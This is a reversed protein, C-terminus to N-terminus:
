VKALSTAERIATWIKFPTLPPDINLCGFPSLADHVANVFAATSGTAASEGIGKVGLPNGNDPTEAISSLINPLDVARPLAYDMFSGSLLQGSDPDYAAEELWGQGVGQAVGGHLQGEVIMPNVARGCDQAVAYGSLAVMGTEPDVEVECAHCGAPVGRGDGTFVDTVAFHPEARFIDDWQVVLDTGPIRFRGVDFIIDDAPAELLAAAVDRAKRVAAIAALKVSSGGLTLSWSAATGVGEAMLGTDSQHFSLRNMPLSLNDVVIQLFSTEHGHGASGSGVILQLCGDGYSLRAPIPEASGHLDEAFLCVGFGRLQGSEVSRTRRTQFNRHDLMDLARDLLLEFDQEEFTTGLPSTWPMAASLVINARRFAIPDRGLRRAVIDMLRECCFVNEPRGAGRYSCTPATNTVAGRVTVHASPIGYVGTLHTLGNSVPVMARSSAYAGMNMLRTARIATIREDANLAAHIDFLNDRGHCDSTLAESRDAIWKVPRALRRAAELCLVYEPYVGNKQGFGGGTDPAVVRMRSRPVRFIRDALARQLIQVRQTSVQLTFGDDDHFGICGRTELPAANIRNSVLTATFDHAAQALGNAVEAADGEQYDFITPARRPDTTAPLTEFDCTIAEAADRAEALSDAVVFALIDGVFRVRDHALIPQAPPDWDAFSHGPPPLDVPVTDLGVAVLMDATLILRVGPMDRATTADLQTFSAHAHPSRLAWGHVLGPPALDDTFCGTGTLFRFDERRRVPQGILSVRETKSM